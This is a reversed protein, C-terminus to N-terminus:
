STQPPHQNIARLASRLNILGKRNMRLAEVTTRGCATRGIILLADESWAFHQAWRQCRPNFLAVLRKTQHDRAHTRDGKYDNCGCSFALNDLETRGGKSSPIIHDANFPQPSIWVPSLCYECRQGAREAVLRRQRPSPRNSSMANRASDWDACSRKCM